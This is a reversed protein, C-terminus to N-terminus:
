NLDHLGTVRWDAQKMWNRSPNAKKITIGHVSAYLKAEDLINNSNTVIWTHFIINQRARSENEKIAKVKEHFEEVECQNIPSNNLRLKCECIFMLIIERGKSEVLVDIEKGNLYPPKIRKNINYYDGSKNLSETLYDGTVDEFKNSFINAVSHAGKGLFKPM